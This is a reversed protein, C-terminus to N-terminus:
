VSDTKEVGGQKENASSPESSPKIINQDASFPSYGTFLRGGEDTIILATGCSHCMQNRPSRLAWGYYRAGCKPCNGELM